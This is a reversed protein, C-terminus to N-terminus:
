QVTTETWFKLLLNKAMLDRARAGSRADSIPTFDASILKSAEEITKRSWVKDSLYKETRKARKTMEAMGGYVLILESPKNSKDLSLRFGASVTAIDLDKRKSIKYSQIQTGNTSKPIHIETILEGRKCQSKRYGLIFETMPIKRSGNKGEVVIIARLAILVPTTDGIPSASGLNGGLTALQRIQKSGFVALMKYLAPVKTKCFTKIAELSAGAGLKYYNKNAGITKLESVDGIDIIEPIIEHNKTVRLAIDTAGAIITAKPHKQVLELASKKDAPKHYIQNNNSLRINAKPIAGLMRKTEKQQSFKDRAKKAGAKQAADIISRYGTCRCLNGTLADDIQANTPKNTNKYLDFMSMIFGPTCFGCQSGDLDIMAEQVPHLNKSDGINEVTILQKGHLMPLFILCADVAQYGIAKNEYTALVVTCAGCDGEACGEKCGKHNPLSRLYNLATTTPSLSESDSFDINIIEDDLVFSITHSYKKTM